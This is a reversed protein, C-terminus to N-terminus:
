SNSKITEKYKTLTEADFIYNSAKEAKGSAQVFWRPNNSISESWGKLYSASNDFDPNMNMKAMLFCSGIEAILEEFSYNESGFRDGKKFRDFRGKHGTSHIIEHSLVQNYSDSSEFSQEHPMKVRDLTPSYCAQFGGHELDIKERQLYAQLTESPNSPEIKEFESERKEMLTNIKEGSVKCIPFVKYYKLYAIKKMKGSEEDEIKSFNWFVIPLGQTGAKLSGGLKKIQKFTLFYNSDSLLSLNVLNVGNYNRGNELNCPSGKEKLRKWTKKWPNIGKDLAALLSENVMKYIDFKETKM